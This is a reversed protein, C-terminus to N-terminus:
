VYTRSNKYREFRYVQRVADLFGRRRWRLWVLRKQKDRLQCRFMLCVLLARQDTRDRPIM